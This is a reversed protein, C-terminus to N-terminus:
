KLAKWGLITLTFMVAGVILPFLAQLNNRVLLVGALFNMGSVFLSFYGAWKIRKKLGIATVCYLIIFLLISILSPLGKDLSNTSIAFVTVVAFGVINIAAWMWSIVSACGIMLERKKDDM